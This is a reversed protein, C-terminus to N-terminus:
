CTKFKITFSDTKASSFRSSWERVQEADIIVWHRNQCLGELNHHPSIAKAVGAVDVPHEAAEPDVVCDGETLEKSKNEKRVRCQCVNPEAFM